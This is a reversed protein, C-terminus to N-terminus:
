IINLKKLHLFYRKFRNQKLRPEELCLGFCYKSFSTPYIRHARLIQAAKSRNGSRETKIEAVCLNQNQWNREWNGNYYQLDWDLTVREAELKSVLTIRNFSSRLTAELQDVEFPIHKHLFPQNQKLDIDFENVSVRKKLTKNRNTKTKVELFNHGSNTYNRVRVKQRSRAGFQHAFFFSRDPTDYYRTRYEQLRTQGVDLIAYHARFQELIPFLHKSHFVFKEDVRNLLSKGDLEDLGISEFSECEVKLNSRTINM